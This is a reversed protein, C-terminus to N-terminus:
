KGNKQLCEDCIHSYTKDMKQLDLITMPPFTITGGVKGCSCKLEYIVPEINIKSTIKEM